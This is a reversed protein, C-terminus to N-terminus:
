TEGEISLENSFWLLIYDSDYIRCAYCNLM